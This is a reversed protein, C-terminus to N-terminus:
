GLGFALGSMESGVRLVSRVSTHRFDMQQIVLMAKEWHKEKTCSSIVASYSSLNPLQKKRTMDKVLQLSVQWQSSREGSSHCSVTPHTWRFNQAGLDLLTESEDSFPSSYIIPTSIGPVEKDLYAPLLSIGNRILMQWVFRKLRPHVKVVISDLQIDVFGGGKEDFFFVIWRWTGAEVLVSKLSWCWCSPKRHLLLSMHPYWKRFVIMKVCQFHLWGGFPPKSFGAMACAAIVTNYLVVDTRHFFVWLMVPIGWHSTATWCTQSSKFTQVNSCTTQYEFFKLVKFISILSQHHVINYIIYVYAYIYIYVYIRLINHLELQTVPISAIATEHMCCPDTTRGSLLQIAQEWHSGKMWATAVELCEDVDGVVPDSVLGKPWMSTRM